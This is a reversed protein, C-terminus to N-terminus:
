APYSFESRLWAGTYYDVAVWETTPNCSDSSGSCLLQWQGRFTVLWVWQHIDRGGPYRSTVDHRVVASALGVVGTDAVGRAIHIAADQAIGVGPNGPSSTTAAVIIAALSPCVLVGTLLARRITSSSRRIKM